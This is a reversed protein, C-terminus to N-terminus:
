DSFVVSNYGSGSLLSGIMQRGREEAETLVGLRVAEKKAATSLISSLTKWEEPSVDLDPYEYLSSETDEIIVETIVAEPLPVTIAKNEEDILIQDASMNEDFNFGAKIRVTIVAFSTGGPVIGARTTIGYLSLMEIERFSLKEHNNYRRLLDATDIEPDLLDHPFVAKYVFEITNLRNIERIQKLAVSSASVQTNKVFPNPINIEFGTQNLIVIAAAALLLLLLLIVRLNFPRKKRGKDTAM